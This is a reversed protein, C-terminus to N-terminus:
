CSLDRAARSKRCPLQPCPQEGVAPSCRGLRAAEKRRVCSDTVRRATIVVLFAGQLRMLPDEGPFHRPTSQEPLLGGRCSLLM